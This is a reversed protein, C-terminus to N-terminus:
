LKAGCDPCYHFAPDLAAGCRGCKDPLASRRVIGGPECVAGCRGCAIVPEGRKVPFLPIFFLSVYQDTRQFRAAALGCAPCIRPTDDLTRTKPQVGGIFFFM